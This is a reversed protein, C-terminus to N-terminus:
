HRTMTLVSLYFGVNTHVLLKTVSAFSTSIRQASDGSRVGAFGSTGVPRQERHVLSELAARDPPVPSCTVLQATHRVQRLESPM